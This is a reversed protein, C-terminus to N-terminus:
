FAEGEEGDDDATEAETSVNALGGFRGRKGLGGCGDNDGYARSEDGSEQEADLGGDERIVAPVAGNVEAVFDSIGALENWAGNESAEERDNDDIKQNVGSDKVNERDSFDGAVIKGEAKGGLTDETM